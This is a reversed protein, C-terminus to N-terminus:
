GNCEKCAGLPHNFSFLLPHPPDFLTGCSNCKLTQSFVNTKDGLVEVLVEGKGERLATELSEVLRARSNFSVVLRDLLVRLEALDSRGPDIAGIDSIEDGLKIRGFGRSQLEMLLAGLGAAPVPIRFLIAIRKESYRNLLDDAISSPHSRKVEIGCKPCVIKGVKAFLLRIYDYIESVTGVTSRSTRVPNRQELAIAPRVNRLEDVDPRDLKEIFMQAYTSLSEIYRWQGEAFVTDFALSSKGSGSLGTVVTVADHPIKLNVNKLNNQRAGKIILESKM